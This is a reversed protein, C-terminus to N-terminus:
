SAHGGVMEASIRLTDDNQVGAQALTQDPNLESDQGNRSYGLRYSIPRGHQDHTPLGLGPVLKELVRSTAVGDPIEVQTKKTRSPDLISVRLVAM